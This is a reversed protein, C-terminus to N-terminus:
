GKMLHTLKNFALKLPLMDNLLLLLCKLACYRGSIHSYKVLLCLSTNWFWKNLPIVSVSMQTEVPETSIYKEKSIPHFKIFAKTPYLVRDKTEASGWIFKVPFSSKPLWERFSVSWNELSSCTMGEANLKETYYM